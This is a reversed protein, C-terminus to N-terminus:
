GGSVKASLKAFRRRLAELFGTTFQEATLFVANVNRNQRRAEHFVGELLHTKGVGTAGHVLLPNMQGMRDVVMSAAAHALRNTSGVIFSELTAYKRGLSASVPQHVRVAPPAEDLVM